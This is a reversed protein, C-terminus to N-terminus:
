KERQYHYRWLYPKQKPGENLILNIDAGRERLIRRFRSTLRRGWVGVAKGPMNPDSKRPKQFMVYGGFLPGFENRPIYKLIAKLHGKIVIVDSKNQGQFHTKFQYLTIM